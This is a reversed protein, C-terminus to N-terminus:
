PLRDAGDYGFTETILEGAMSAITTQNGPAQWAVAFSPNGIAM